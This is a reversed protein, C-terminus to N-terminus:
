ASAMDVVRIRAAMTLMAAVVTTQTVSAPHEIERSSGLALLPDSLGGCVLEGLSAGVSGEVEGVGLAVGPVALGEVVGTGGVGRAARNAGASSGWSLSVDRHVPCRVPGARCSGNPSHWFNSMSETPAVVATSRVNVEPPSVAPWSTASNGSACFVTRAAFTSSAQCRSQALRTSPVPTLTRAIM